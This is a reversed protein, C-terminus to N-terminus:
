SFSLCSMSTSSNLLHMFESMLDKKSSLCFSVKSVAALSASSYAKVCLTEKILLGFGELLGNEGVILIWVYDWYDMLCDYGFM